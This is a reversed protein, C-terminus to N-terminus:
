AIPKEDPTLHGFGDSVLEYASVLFCSNGLADNLDDLADEKPMEAPYYIVVTIPMVSDNEPTGSIHIPNTTMQPGEQSPSNVSSRPAPM